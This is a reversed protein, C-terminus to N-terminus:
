SRRLMRTVTSRSIGLLRAAEQQNGKTDCLIRKLILQAYQEMQVEASPPPLMLWAAESSGAAVDQQPRQSAKLQEPTVVEGDFMFVVWEIANRLERVNGPWERGALWAAAEASFGQFRKGRQRVSEQLFTLSLPM